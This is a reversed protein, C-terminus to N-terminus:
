DIIFGKVKFFGDHDETHDIEPFYTERIRSAFAFRTPDDDKLKLELPVFRELKISKLIAPSKQIYELYYLGEDSTGGILVDIENSWAKRALDLPRESIFTEETIYEEIHPAFVIHVKGTDAPLKLKEQVEVLRVPDAIRLFELIEREAQSGEYGLKRALRNGWDRRPTLSWSNFVTGAMIIAKHFLGKSRESVCHWSVSSGGASQGFLTQLFLIQFKWPM